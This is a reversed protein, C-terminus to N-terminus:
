LTINKMHRSILPAYCAFLLCDDKGHRWKKSALLSELVIKKLGEGNLYWFGGRLWLLVLFSTM